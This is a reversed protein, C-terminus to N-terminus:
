DVLDGEAQESFSTAAPARSHPGSIDRLIAIRTRFQHQINAHKEIRRQPHPPAPCLGEGGTETGRSAIPASIDGNPAGKSIVVRSPPFAAFEERTIAMVLMALDNNWRTSVNSQIGLK